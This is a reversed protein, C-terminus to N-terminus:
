IVFPFTLDFGDGYSVSFLHDSCNCIRRIKLARNKEIKQFIFLDYRRKKMNNIKAPIM